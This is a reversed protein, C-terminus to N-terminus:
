SSFFRVGVIVVLSVVIGYVYWNINGTQVRRVRTGVGNTLWATGNVLGDVVYHDFAGSVWAALRTVAAAGNVIGDIVTLDFWALLRSLSLSGDVFVRQYLEDVYYKNYVARYIRGGALNAFTDPSLSRRVYMLYALLFSVAVVAITVFMLLTEVGGWHPAHHEAHAGHAFVPELFKEFYHDSFILGLPTQRFLATVGLGGALIALTALVILPVTM